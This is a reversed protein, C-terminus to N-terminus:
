LKPLILLFLIKQLDYINVYVEYKYIYVYIDGYIYLTKNASLNLTPIFTFLKNEYYDLFFNDNNDKILSKKKNNIVRVDYKTLYINKIIDSLFSDSNYNISLGKRNNTKEIYNIKYNFENLFQNYYNIDSLLLPGQFFAVSNLDKLKKIVSFHNEKIPFSDFIVASYKEKDDIDFVTNFNFIHDIEVNKYKNLINKIYRTNKSLRGSLILIKYNILNSNEIYLNYYNNNLDYESEIRSLYIENYNSLLDNPIELEHFTTNTGKNVNVTSIVYDTNKENSIYLNINNYINNTHSTIQCKIRISDNYNDMVIISDISLDQIVIEDDGIGFSNIRGFDFRINNINNMNQVGDSILIYEDASIKNLEVLMYGFDTNKDNFTISNVNDIKRLSDGFVYFNTNISKEELINKYKNLTNKFNNSNIVNKISLSNDIIFAINKSIKIRKNKSLIPNILIILILLIVLCRISFLITKIYKNQNIINHYYKIILWFFIFFLFIVFYFSPIDLIRFM